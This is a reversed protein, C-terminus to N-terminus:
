RLGNVTHRLAMCQSLFCNGFPHGKPVAEVVTVTDDPGDTNHAACHNGDQQYSEHKILDKPGDVNAGPRETANGVLKLISADSSHTQEDNAQEDHCGVPDHADEAAATPHSMVTGMEWSLIAKSLRERRQQHHITSEHRQRLVALTPLLNSM